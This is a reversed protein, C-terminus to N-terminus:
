SPLLWGRYHVIQGIVPAGIAVDFRFRGQEDVWERANITPALSRPLPMPGLSWGVIEMSLTEESAVLNFKCTM